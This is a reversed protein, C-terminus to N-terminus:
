IPLRATNKVYQLAFHSNFSAVGPFHLPISTKELSRSMDEDPTFAQKPPEGHCATLASHGGKACAFKGYDPSVRFALRVPFHGSRVWLPGEIGPQGNL